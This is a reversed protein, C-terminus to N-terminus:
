DKTENWTKISRITSIKIKDCSLHTTFVLTGVNRDINEYYAWILGKNAWVEPDTKFINVQMSPKAKYEKFGYDKPIWTSMISLGADILVSRKPNMTLGNIGVCYIFPIEGTADFVHRPADWIKHEHPLRPMEFACENIELLPWSKSYHIVNAKSMDPKPKKTQPTKTFIATVIGGVLLLAENETGDNDNQKKNETNENDNHEKNETNETNDNDYKDM